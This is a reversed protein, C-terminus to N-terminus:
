HALFVLPLKEIVRDDLVAERLVCEVLTALFHCSEAVTNILNDADLVVIDDALLSVQQVLCLSLLTYHLLTTLCRLLM